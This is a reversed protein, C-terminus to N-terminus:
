TVPEYSIAFVPMWHTAQRLEDVCWGADPHYSAQGIM